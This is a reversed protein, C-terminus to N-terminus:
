MYHITDIGDLYDKEVILGPREEIMVDIVFDFEMWINKMFEIHQEDTSEIEVWTNYDDDTVRLGYIM